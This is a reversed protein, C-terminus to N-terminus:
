ARVLINQCFSALIMLVKLLRHATPIRVQDVQLVGAANQFFLESAEGVTLSLM